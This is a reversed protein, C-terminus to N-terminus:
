DLCRTNEAMEVCFRFGFKGAETPSARPDIAM